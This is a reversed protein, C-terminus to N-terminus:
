ERTEDRGRRSILGVAAARRGRKWKHSPVPRAAAASAILAWACAGFRPPPLPRRRPTHLPYARSFRQRSRCRPRPPLSAQPPRRSHSLSRSYRRHWHRRAPPHLTGNSDAASDLLCRSRFRLSSRHRSGSGTARKPAIVACRTRWCRARHSRGPWTAGSHRSGGRGFRVDLRASGVARHTGSVRCVEHSRSM